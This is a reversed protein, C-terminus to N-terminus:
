TSAVVYEIDVAASDAQCNISDADQYTVLTAGTASVAEKTNGMIFMKGPDLKVGFTDAGNKKVTIRAYNVSDLNTIQLYKMDGRIFTGAGVTSGFGIVIVESIPVSMIRKDFENINPIILQNESNIPQGNLTISTSVTVTLNQATITSPM